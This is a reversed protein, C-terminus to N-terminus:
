HGAPLLSGANCDQPPQHAGSLLCVQPVPLEVEEVKGKIITVQSSYGNAAVIQKAQEAIASCEIGYM